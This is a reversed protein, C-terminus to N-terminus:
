TSFLEVLDPAFGDQGDPTVATSSVLSTAFARACSVSLLRIWRRRWFHFVSGRLLPPAVLLSVFEIAESSWRGGTEIAVEVLRCRESSLLEHYKAEKEERARTLVAGNVHSANPRARGQATLASRLTIDVALQAGHHLPLGSVLVEIPREDHAPVLDNMDRLKTNCIVTAGAERCVWALSRETGFAQSRLRVSRPCAALDLRSGCECSADTVDLPLRLRELM